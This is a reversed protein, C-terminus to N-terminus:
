REALHHYMPLNNTTALKERCMASRSDSKEREGYRWTGDRQDTLWRTWRGTSGLRVGARCPGGARTRTPSPTAGCRRPLKSEGEWAPRLRVAKQHRPSPVHTRSNGAKATPERASRAPPLYALRGVFSGRLPPHNGGLGDERSAFILSGVARIRKGVLLLLRFHIGSFKGGVTVGVANDRRKDSHGGAHPLNLFVRLAVRRVEADVDVDVREARQAVALERTDGLRGALPGM